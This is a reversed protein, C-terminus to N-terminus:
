GRSSSLKAPARSQIHYMCIISKLCRYRVSLSGLVACISADLTSNCEVHRKAYEEMSEGDAPGGHDHGHASVFSRLCIFFAAATTLRMTFLPPRHLRFRRATLAPRQELELELEVLVRVRNFEFLIQTHYMLNLPLLTCITHILYSHLPPQPLSLIGAGFLVNWAGTHPM